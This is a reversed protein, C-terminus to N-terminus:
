LCAIIVPKRANGHTEICLISEFLAETLTGKCQQFHQELSRQIDFIACAKARLRCDQIRSIM